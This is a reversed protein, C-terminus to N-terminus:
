LWIHTQLLLLWSDKRTNDNSFNRTNYADARLEVRQIPFYQLGPGIRVSYDDQHINQKQYEINTLFYLGRWPRVSTQLLAYRSTRNGNNDEFSKTTQGIESLIASGEKINFRGHIAASTLRQFDNKSSLFSAGIRHLDFVTKELMGSAGKMRYEPEQELNGVFASIGGEWGKTLFHTSIGHVPDNQSVRPNSRSYAIHEIVRIGYLKDMLGLYIGFNENPRHGVFYNRSYYQQENLGEGPFEPMPVRGYEGSVIFKDNEGFKLTARIDSQMTIWRKSEQESGPNQYMSFGRYNAQLRLHDQKPKRFLFGSLYALKEESVNDPYFTRASIATASVVRGYDNLQGGGFPNFHCNLCSPYGHGIFNAYGWSTLPALAFILVLFTKM